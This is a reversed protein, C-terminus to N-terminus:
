YSTGFISLAITLIKLSIHNNSPLGTLSELSLCLIAAKRFAEMTFKRFITKQALIEIGKIRTMLEARRMDPNSVSRDHLEKLSFREGNENVLHQSNLYQETKARQQLYSHKAYPSAYCHKGSRVIGIDRSFSEITHKRLCRLQRSWWKKCCMRNVCASICDQHQEPTSPQLTYLEVLEACRGYIEYWDNNLFTKVDECQKARKEAFTQLADDDMSVNFDHINLREDWQRLNINAQVHDSDEAIRKYASALPLAFLNNREFIKKRFRHCDPTGFHSTKQSALEFAQSSDTGIQVSFHGM